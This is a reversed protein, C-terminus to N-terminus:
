LNFIESFKTRLQRLETEDMTRYIDLFRNVNNDDKMESAVINRPPEGGMSGSTQPEFSISIPETEM